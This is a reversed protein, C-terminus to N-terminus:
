TVMLDRPLQEECHCIEIDEQLLKVGTSKAYYVLHNCYLSLECLLDVTKPLMPEYSAGLSEYRDVAAKSSNKTGINFALDLVSENKIDNPLNLFDFLRTMVEEPNESLDESRVVMMDVNTTNKLTEELQKWAHFPQIFCEEFPRGVCHKRLLADFNEPTRKMATSVQSVHCCKKNTERSCESGDFIPNCFYRWKSYVWSFPSRLLYIFRTCSYKSFLFPRLEEMMRVNGSAYGKQQSMNERLFQVIPRDRKYHLEKTSSCKNFENANCLYHFLATSGAKGPSIILWSPLCFENLEDAETSSKFCDIAAYPHTQLQTQRTYTTKGDLTLTVPGRHQRCARQNESVVRRQQANNNVISNTAPSFLTSFLLLCLPTLFLLFLLGRAKSVSLRVSRRTSM